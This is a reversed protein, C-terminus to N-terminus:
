ATSWNPRVAQGPRILEAAELSARVRPHASLPQFVHGEEPVLVAWWHAWPSGPPEDDYHVVPVHAPYRAQVADIVEMALNAVSHGGETMHEVVVAVQQCGPPTVLWM